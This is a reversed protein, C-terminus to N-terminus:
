PLMQDKRLDRHEQEVLRPKTVGDWLKILQGVVVRKEHKVCRSPQCCARCFHLNLICAKIRALPPTPSWITWSHGCIEYQIFADFAVDADKRM